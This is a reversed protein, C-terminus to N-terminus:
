AYANAGGKCYVSPHKGGCKTCKHPLTCEPGYKCHGQSFHHCVGGKQIHGGPGAAPHARGRPASSPAGRGRGAAAGRFTNAQGGFSNSSATQGRFKNHSQGQAKGQSNERLRMTPQLIYTLWLQSDLVGWDQNPYEQMQLRFGVDYTRWGYGEFNAAAHRITRMYALIQRCRHPHAELYVDAYNLFATSWEDISRVQKTNVRTIFKGDEWIMESDRHSAQSVPLFGHLETFTGEWITRKDAPSFIMSVSQSMTPAFDRPPVFSLRSAIRSTGQKITSDEPGPGLDVFDETTDVVAPDKRLTKGAKAGTPKAVKEVPGAVGPADQTVSNRKSTRTGHGHVTM